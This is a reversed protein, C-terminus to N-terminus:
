LAFALQMTQEKSIFHTLQKTPWNLLQL